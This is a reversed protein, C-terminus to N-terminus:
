RRQIAATSAAGMALLPLLANDFGGIRIITLAVGVFIVWTLLAQGLALARVLVAGESQPPPAVEDLRISNAQGPVVTLARM